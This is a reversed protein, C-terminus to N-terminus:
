QIFKNIFTLFFFFEQIKFSEMNELLFCNFFVNNGEKILEMDGKGCMNRKNFQLALFTSVITNLIIKDKGILLFTIILIVHFSFFYHLLQQQSTSQLIITPALFISHVSYHCSSYRKRKFCNRFYIFFILIWSLYCHCVIVWLHHLFSVASM